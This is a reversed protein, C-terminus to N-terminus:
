IIITTKSDKCIVGVTQLQSCSGSPYVNKSCESVSFEWGFCNMDSWIALSDQIGYYANFYSFLGTIIINFFSSQKLEVLLKTLHSVM